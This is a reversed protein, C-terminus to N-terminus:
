RLSGYQEPDGPDMENYFTTKYPGRGREKQVTLKCLWNTSNTGFYGSVVLRAPGGRENNLPKGDMEYAVLVEPRLAKEIPLDKQYRDAEVGAFVGRDLGDSWVYRTEDTHVFGSLSLLDVLRVGTWKVNGIRWLADIPPKLPSGYCEHFATISTQPLTKLMDLTIAFPHPVLGNVILLCKSIDVITAGMHVTQFLHDDPTIFSCLEHPPPLHRISFGSPDVSELADREKDEGPAPLRWAHDNDDHQGQWDPQETAEHAM